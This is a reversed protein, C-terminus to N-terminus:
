SMLRMFLYPQRDNKIALIDAGKLWKHMTVFRKFTRKHKAYLPHRTVTTFIGSELLVEDLVPSLKVSIGDIFVCLVGEDTNNYHETYLAYLSKFADKRSKLEFLYTVGAKTAKVDGPYGKIAGSLPIRESVFMLDRLYNRLLYEQSRGKIRQSKGM